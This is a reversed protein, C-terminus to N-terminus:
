WARLCGVCTSRGKGEHGEKRASGLGVGVAFVCLSVECGGAGGGGDDDNGCEWGDGKRVCKDWISRRRGFFWVREGNRGRGRFVWEAARWVGVTRVSRGGGCFPFGNWIGPYQRILIHRLSTTATNDM